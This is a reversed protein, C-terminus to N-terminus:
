RAIVLQKISQNGSVEEFSVSYIGGPLNGLVLEMQTQEADLAQEFVVKGMANYVRVSKVRTDGKLWVAVRDNAPNPSLSIGNQMAPIQGDPNSQKFMQPAPDTLTYPTAWFLQGTVSSYVTQAPLAARGTGYAITKVKELETSDMQMWSQDAKELEILLSFLTIFNRDDPTLGRQMELEMLKAEAYEINGQDLM